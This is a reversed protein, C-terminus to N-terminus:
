LLYFSSQNTECAESSLFTVRTPLNRLVVRWIYHGIDEEVSPECCLSFNVADSRCQLAREAFSM